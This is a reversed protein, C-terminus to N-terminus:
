PADDCIRVNPSHRPESDICKEGVERGAKRFVERRFTECMEALTEDSLDALPYSPSPHFGDQRQGPKGKAQVFNPVTFPLLEIELKM